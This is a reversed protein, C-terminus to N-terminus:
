TKSVVGVLLALHDVTATPRLYVDDELEVAEKLDGVQGLDAGEVM